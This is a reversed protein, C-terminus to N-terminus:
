SSSAGHQQQQGKLLCLSSSQKARHVSCVVENIKYSGTVEKQKDVMKDIDAFLDADSAGVSKKQDLSKLGNEQFSRNYNAANQVSQRLSANRDAM